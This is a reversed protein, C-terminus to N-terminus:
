ERIRGKRLFRHRSTGCVEGDRQEQCRDEDDRRDAGLLARGVALPGGIAPVEPVGAIGPEVLDVAGVEAVELHGPPEAGGVETRPRLEDELRGRQHGVAHEVGGGAGSPGGDREIGLGTLHEPYVPEVLALPAGARWAPQGPAAQGVPVVPAVADDEVDGGAIPEDSQVGLGTSPHGVEAVLADDVEFLPEVLVDVRHGALDPQMRRRDDGVPDDDNARRVERTDRRGRLLFRLAVDAPVVGPGPLPPPDEVGDRIRVLEAVVAPQVVRPAVGAVSTDPALHRDVFLEAVDVQRDLHRGPVEVAPVTKAVVQECVADHRHLDGGAVADPVVLRNM